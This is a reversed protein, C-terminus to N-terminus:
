VYAQVGVAPNPVGFVVVGDSVFVVEAEGITVVVYVQKTVSTLPQVLKGAKTVIVTFGVGVIVTLPVFVIQLPCLVVSVAPPPM